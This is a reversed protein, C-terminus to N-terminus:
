IKVEGAMEDSKFGDVLASSVKFGGAGRGGQDEGRAGEGPEEELLPQHSQVTLTSILM